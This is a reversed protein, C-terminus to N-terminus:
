KKVRLKQAIQERLYLQGNVFGKEYAWDKEQKLAEIEEQVRELDIALLSLLDDLKEIPTM